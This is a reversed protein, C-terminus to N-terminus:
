KPEPWNSLLMQPAGSKAVVTPFACVFRCLLRLKCCPNSFRCFFRSGPVAAPLKRFFRPM